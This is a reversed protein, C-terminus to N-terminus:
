YVLQEDASIVEVWLKTIARPRVKRFALSIAEEAHRARIEVFQCRNGSISIAVCFNKTVPKPPLKSHGM